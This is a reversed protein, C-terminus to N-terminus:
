EETSHRRLDVAPQLGHAVSLSEKRKRTLDTGTPPTSAMWTGSSPVDVERGM